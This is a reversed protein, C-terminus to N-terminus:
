GFSYESMQFFMAKNAYNLGYKITIKDIFSLGDDVRLPIAATIENKGM